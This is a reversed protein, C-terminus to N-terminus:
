NMWHKDPWIPSPAPPPLAPEQPLKVIPIHPEVLHMFGARGNERRNEDIIHLANITSVFTLPMNRGHMVAIYHNNPEQVCILFFSTMADELVKASRLLWLSREPTLHEGMVLRRHTAYKPSSQMLAFHKIATPIKDELMLETQSPDGKSHVLGYGRGAVDVEGILLYAKVDAPLTPNFRNEILDQTSQLPAEDM